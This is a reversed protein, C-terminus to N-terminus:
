HDDGRELAAEYSCDAIHHLEQGDAGNRVVNGWTAGCATCPGGRHISEQCDNVEKLNLPEIRRREIRMEHHSAIVMDNESSRTLLRDDGRVLTM